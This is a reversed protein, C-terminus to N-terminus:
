KNKERLLFEIFDQYRDIRRREAEFNAQYRQHIDQIKADFELALREITHQSDIMDQEIQRIDEEIRAKLAPLNQGAKAIADRMQATTNKQAQELESLLDQQTEYTNQNSQLDSLVERMDLSLKMHDSLSTSQHAPTPAPTAPTEVPASTEAPSSPTQASAPTSTAGFDGGFDGGFNGGIVTDPTNEAAEEVAEEEAAEAAKNAMGETIDEIETPSDTALLDTEDGLEAAIAAELEADLSADLGAEDNSIDDVGALPAAEDTEQQSEIDPNDSALNRDDQPAQQPATESPEDDLINQIADAIEAMKRFEDKEDAM